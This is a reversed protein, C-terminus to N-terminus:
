NTESNKNASMIESEKGVKETVGILCLKHLYYKDYAYSISILAKLRVQLYISSTM